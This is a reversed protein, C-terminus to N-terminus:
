SRYGRYNVNYKSLYYSIIVHVAALAPTRGNLCATIHSSKVTAQGSGDSLRKIDLSCDEPILWTFIADTSSTFRPCPAKGNRLIRCDLNFETNEGVLMQGILVDVLRVDQEGANTYCTEHMEKLRKNLILLNTIVGVHHKLEELTGNNDIIYDAMNPSMTNSSRDEPPIRKSADIWIVYDYLDKSAAFEKESRMGVYVNFGDDFMERSIRNWTPANYDEIQQYWIARNNKRDNFCEESTEYPKGISSFYPMMIRDTAFSSSALYKFGYESMMEGVTDKGTGADSIILIKPLKSTM